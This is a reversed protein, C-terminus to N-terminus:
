VDIDPLKQFKKFTIHAHPYKYEDIAWFGIVGAVTACPLNANIAEHSWFQPRTGGARKKPGLRNYFLFVLQRSCNHGVFVFPRCSM